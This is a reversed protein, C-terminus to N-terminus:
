INIWPAMAFAKKVALSILSVGSFAQKTARWLAWLRRFKRLRRFANRPGPMGTAASPAKM